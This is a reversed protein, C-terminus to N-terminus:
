YVTVSYVTSFEFFGDPFYQIIPEERFADGTAKARIEVTHTGVSLPGVFAAPTMYQMAGDPLPQDFKIGSLYRAGLPYVKGDVVIDVYVSGWERQSYWYRLLERRNEVNRPFNGIVPISDDNYAVPVYLIVGQGVRFPEPANPPTYYLIQFPSNPLPGTRSVNFSATLRAMDDLSYGHPRASAPLVANARHASNLSETAPQKGVGALAPGGVFAIFMASALIRLLRTMFASVLAIALSGHLPVAVRM